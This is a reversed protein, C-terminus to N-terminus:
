KISVNFVKENAAGPEWSRKYTMTIRTNGTKIGQFTFYDKGGVGVMGAKAEAQKYDSSVLKLLNSDFNTEWKFGTTPNSELVIVFQVGVAINIDQSTDTYERPEQVSVCSIFLGAFLV